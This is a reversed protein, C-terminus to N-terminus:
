AAAASTRRLGLVVPLALASALACLLFALGPLDVFLGVLGTVVLGGFNGSMWILGAATGEASGTRREVMELVIPMCPLLAAGVLVLGVLGTAVGPAAALLVCAGASVVLAVAMTPVEVAARSALVPIIGCGVVGAVVNLLLMVSAVDASVGAPELLAQGFTSLAVFTGFPFLVLVCLRRIVPDALTTRVPTAAVPARLTTSAPVTALAVLLGIAALATVVAGITVLTRVQDEGPLLAGLLFAAVLGSFTAATGLAIGKARDEPALYRSATGTIANLVFPQALAVLLQGLLAVQYTDGTLRVSAGVATLLAGFALAPAFRRDLQVGAPLAVLLYVLPFLNALWGVATESVGFYSASVTTVPAYTLWVMQNAAAVLCYALM